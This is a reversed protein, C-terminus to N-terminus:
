KGNKGEKDIPWYLECVWISEDYSSYKEMYYGPTNIWSQWPGNSPATYRWCTERWPCIESNCKSIDAM